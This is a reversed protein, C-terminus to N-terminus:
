KLIVKTFLTKFTWESLSNLTKAQRCGIQQTEKWWSKWHLASCLLLSEFTKKEALAMILVWFYLSFSFDFNSDESVPWQCATTIVAFGRLATLLHRSLNIVQLHQVFFLSLLTPTFLDPHRPRLMWYSMQWKWVFNYFNWNFKVLRPFHVISCFWPWLHCCKLM